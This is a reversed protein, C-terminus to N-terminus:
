GAFSAFKPSCAVAFCGAFWTPLHDGPQLPESEPGLHKGLTMPKVKKLYSTHHLRLTGDKTKEINAGCYELNDGDKWERFSFMERLRKIVDQYVPSSGDGAGLMDDVHLCIMGCLRDDGLTSSRPQGPAYPNEFDTEYILFTCPDLIHQRLGLSRLRRVAELYGDGQLMWNAM